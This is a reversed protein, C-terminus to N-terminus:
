KMEVGGKKLKKMEYPVKKRLSIEHEKIERSLRKRNGKLYKRGKNTNGKFTKSL